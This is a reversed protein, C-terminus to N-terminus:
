LVEACGLQEVVIVIGSTTVHAPALPLIITTTIHITPPPLHLLFATHIATQITTIAIVQILQATVAIGVSSYSLWCAREFM